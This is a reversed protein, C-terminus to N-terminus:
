VHRIEDHTRVEEDSSSSGTSASTTSPTSLRQALLKQLHSVPPHGAGGKQKIGSNSSCSPPAPLPSPLIPPVPVMRHGPNEVGAMTSLLTLLSIGSGQLSMRVLFPALHSFRSSHSHTYRLGCRDICAGHIPHTLKPPLPPSSFVVVNDIMRRFADVGQLKSPTSLLREECAPDTSLSNHEQGIM